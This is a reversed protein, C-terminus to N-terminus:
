STYHEKVGNLLQNKGNLLSNFKIFDCSVVSIKAFLENIFINYDVEQLGYPVPTETTSVISPDIANIDISCHINKIGNPEIKKLIYKVVVLIDNERIFNDSYVNLNNQEM